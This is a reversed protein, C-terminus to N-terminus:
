DSGNDQDFSQDGDIKQVGLSLYAMLDKIQEDTLQKLLQEPMLSTKVAQLEELDDRSLVVTETDATRFTVTNPDQAEIVGTVLRGDVTVAKYSQYGERIELSPEIIAPLWFKLSGRAYGDLPPGIQQGEGFLRHCNGCHKMFHVQGADPDGTWDNLLSTLRNIEDIKEPASVAVVKGFAQEVAAVLEQNEYTRLQQVVDAPVDNAKLRWQNIEALLKLAWSKRSALTRCATSRLDHEASIGSYLSGILQAPIRDDDFSALATIAVRQLSPENTARGTALRILIDIAETFKLEGLARALEIRVGLKASSDQLLGVADTAANSRGSRLALVVGEEGLSAQHRAMAADLREPLKPISRGQFAKNLGAILLDQSTQDPAMAILQDCRVLDMRTGRSAYRQMLRGILVQRVIPLSWFEKDTLLEEVASWDDAHSELAWWYLLPLHPDDIDEDHKVLQGLIALGNSANVRKATSALQSRVQGEREIEALRVMAAHGEHRDGMLRVSWRRIHADRHRMWNVARQTTLEGMLSLAWLSELSSDRDVLDILRDVVTRDGRWGLELMARRRVWKNPDAFKDVLESSSKKRLDGGTYVPNSGASRVRYIRGSEKHWDDIPSIHSLRTDYWDAIYIAGDPGVGSYVPRFWRDRSDLLNENDVTRYSSGHRILKSNWVLNHLSNPAFITGEYQAPLQGGEYILFAQAFRRQDGEMKMAHFYGFAFPNTLPGHKGWNKDAYSGQPYYYGRTSGSNTGSFVRGKSDIDLSFTNGGGEAFIEFIRTTPHYRWICQGEFGTGKTVQSSVSGVTTSGNAGYLWGDPGWLLNNAVSHTDQLGFGSLHVEPDGDPVDDGDADRYFLLYPPNLVWIGDSGVQVSSAINLGTIVDKSSDYTGNGDTDEMVTIRDVGRAGHPPPEPIRDFVARLHQDYRVVKLGAPFQYQRYQVVWMRGRSDWSLFLPQSIVPEHAVLDVEFGSQVRFLKLADEPLTPQSGDAQVGRPKFSNMLEQVKKNGAVSDDDPLQEQANATKSISM